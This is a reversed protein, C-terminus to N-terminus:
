MSECMTSVMNNLKEINMFNGFPWGYIIELTTACSRFFVLFSKFHSGNTKPDATYIIRSLTRNTRSTLTYKATALHFRRHLM